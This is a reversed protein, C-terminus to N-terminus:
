IALAIEQSIFEGDRLQLFLTLGEVTPPPLLRGGPLGRIDCKPSM